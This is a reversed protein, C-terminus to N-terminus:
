PEQCCEKKLQREAKLNQFKIWSLKFIWNWCLLSHINSYCITPLGSILCYGTTHLRMRHSKERLNRSERKIRSQSIREQLFFPPLAFCMSSPHFSSEFHICITRSGESTFCEQTFHSAKAALMCLLCLFALEPSRNSQISPVKKQHQSPVIPISVHSSIRYSVMSSEILGSTQPIKNVGLSNDHIFKTSM